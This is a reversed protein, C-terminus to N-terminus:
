KAYYFEGNVIKSSEDQRFLPKYSGNVEMDFVRELVSVMDICIAKDVETADEQSPDDRLPGWYSAVFENWGLTPIKHCQGAKLRREFIAALAHCPNSGRRLPKGSGNEVTAYLRYCVDVLILSSFQFNSKSKNKLPGRYNTTYRQFHIEGGPSGLPKCIQVKIPRIWAKGDHFFAISEFIGKAASWTPVPYSTPTAGTDPRTWMAFPGAIEMSILYKTMNPEVESYKKLGLIKDIKKLRLAALVVHHEM